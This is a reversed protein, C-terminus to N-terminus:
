KKKEKKKKALTIKNQLAKKKELIELEQKMRAIEMEIDEEQSDDDESVNRAEKSKEKEIVDEVEPIADNVSQEIKDTHTEQQNPKEYIGFEQSRLSALIDMGNNEKSNDKFMDELDNNYGAENLDVSPKINTLNTNITPNSPLNQLSTLNKTASQTPTEKVEEIKNVKTKPNIEKTSKQKHGITIKKQSKSAQRSQSYEEGRAWMNIWVEDDADSSDSNCQEVVVKPKIEKNVHIQPKETVEEKKVYLQPKETVEVKKVYLQKEVVEEKKVYLQPKETVEVKKVYSQKEVVKKEKMVYLTDEEKKVYEKQKLYHKEKRNERRPKPETEKTPLEQKMVYVPSANKPQRPKSVNRAKSVNRKIDEKKELQKDSQKRAPSVQNEKERNEYPNHKEKKVNVSLKNKPALTSAKNGVSLNRVKTNTQPRKRNYSSGRARAETDNKSVLESNLKSNNFLSAYKEETGKQIYESEVYEKRLRIEEEKRERDEVVKRKLLINKLNKERIRKKEEDRIREEEDLKEQEKLREQKKKEVKELLSKEFEQKRLKVERLEQEKKQIVTMKQDNKASQEKQIYQQILEKHQKKHEQSDDRIKQKVDDSEKKMLKIKKKRDKKNELKKQQKERKLRMEETEIVPSHESVNKSEFNSFVESVQTSKTKPLETSDQDKVFETIIQGEVIENKQLCEEDVKSSDEQGSNEFVSIIVPESKENEPTIVFAKQNEVPTADVTRENNIEEKLNEPQLANGSIEMQFDDDDSFSKDEATMLTLEDDEQNIEVNNVLEKLSTNEKHKKAYIVTEQLNQLNVEPKSSDHQTSHNKEDQLNCDRAQDFDNSIKQDDSSKGSIGIINYIFGLVGKPAKEKCDQSFGLIKDNQTSLQIEQNHLNNVEGKKLKQITKKAKSSKSNAKKM